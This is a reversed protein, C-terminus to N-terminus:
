WDDAIDYGPPLEYDSISPIDVAFDDISVHSIEGALYKGHINKSAIGEPTQYYATTAKSLKERTEETVERHRNHCGQSCYPGRKRHEKQCQPCSKLRYVGPM